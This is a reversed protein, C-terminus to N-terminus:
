VHCAELIMWFDQMKGYITWMRGANGYLNEMSKEMSKGDIKWLNEMSKGSWSLRLSHWKTRWKPCRSGRHTGPVEGTIMDTPKKQPPVVLRQPKTLPLVSHVM